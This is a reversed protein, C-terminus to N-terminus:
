VEVFVIRRLSEAHNNHKKERKIKYNAIFSLCWVFKCYDIVRAKKILM